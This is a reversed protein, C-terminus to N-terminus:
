CARDTSAPSILFQALTVNEGRRSATRSKVHNQARREDPIRQKQSTKLRFPPPVVDDHRTGDNEKGAGEDSGPVLRRATVVAPPTTWPGLQTDTSSTNLDAQLCEGGSERGSQLDEGCKELKSMVPFLIFVRNDPISQM